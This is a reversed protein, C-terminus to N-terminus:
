GVSGLSDVYNSAVQGVFVLGCCWFWSRSLHALQIDFLILLLFAHAPSLKPTFLQQQQQSAHILRFILPPLLSGPRLYPRFHSPCFGQPSPSSRASKNYRFVVLTSSVTFVSLCISVADRCFHCVLPSLSLISMSLSQHQPQDKKTPHPIPTDFHHDASFQHCLALHVCFRHQFHQHYCNVGIMM